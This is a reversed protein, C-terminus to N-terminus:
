GEEHNGRGLYVPLSGFSALQREIFDDWAMQQYAKLDRPGGAQAIDEDVAYMARFDGLHWYFAAGDMLAGGRNGANGCRRLQSFRRFGCLELGHLKESCSSISGVRWEDRWETRSPDGSRVMFFLAMCVGLRSWKKRQM